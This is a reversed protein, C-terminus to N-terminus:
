QVLAGLARATLVRALHLKAAASHYLDPSPDLDEGLASQAAAVAQPGYSQGEIVAATRPARVPTAGVGLYALRLDSIKGGEVRGHAALGVIAYDGHRRALEVFASRYGRELSPFEVALLLEDPALATTYLARFFDRAPVRREGGTGAIVLVADLALVCAPYEAAPDALAISGGLTGANRIAVHAVHPVAQALLPVHRAIEASREIECHRTLAGVRLVGNQVLIGSLETLGTIDVLLRPSSLRMNLSALLSQGGALVRAADGHRALLELAEAVSDPRAYAFSPAKM